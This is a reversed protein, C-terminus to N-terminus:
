MGRPAGARHAVGSFARAFVRVSWEIPVASDIYPRTAPARARRLIERARPAGGADNFFSRSVKERKLSERIDGSQPTLM